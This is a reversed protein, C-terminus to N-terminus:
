VHARGIQTVANEKSESDQKVKTIKKNLETIKELLNQMISPNKVGILTDLGEFIQSRYGAAMNLYAGQNANLIQSTNGFGERSKYVPKGMKGLRNQELNILAQSGSKFLGIAFDRSISSSLLGDGTSQAIAFGFDKAKQPDLGSGIGQAILYSVKQYREESTLGKLQEVLKKGNESQFYPDFQSVSKKQEKTFRFLKDQAEPAKFGTAEQIIKLSNALGGINAGAEAAKKAMDNFKNQGVSRFLM